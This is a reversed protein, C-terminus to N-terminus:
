ALRRAEKDARSLFSMWREGYRNPADDGEGFGVWFPRYPRERQLLGAELGM